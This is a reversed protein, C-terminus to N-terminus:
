PGYSLMWPFGKPLTSFGFVVDDGIFRDYGVAVFAPDVFVSASVLPGGYSGPTATMTRRVAVYFSASPLNPSQSGVFFQRNLFGDAPLQSATKQADACINNSPSEPFETFTCFTGGQSLFSKNYADRVLVLMSDSPAPANVAGSGATEFRPEGALKTVMPQGYQVDVKFVYTFYLVGGSLAMDTWMTPARSATAAAGAPAGVPTARVGTVAACGLDESTRADQAASAGCADAPVLSWNAGGLKWESDSWDPGNPAIWNVQHGYNRAATDEYNDDFIGDRDGAPISGDGALSVCTLSSPVNSPNISLSGASYSFYNILADPQAWLINSATGGTPAGEAHSVRLKTPLDPGVNDCFLFGDTAVSLTASPSTAQYNIGKIGPVASAISQSQREVRLMPAAQVQALAGIVGCATAGTTFCMIWNKMSLM